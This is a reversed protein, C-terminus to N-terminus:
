FCVIFLGESVSEKTSDHDHDESRSEHQPNSGNFSQSLDISMNSKNQELFSVEMEEINNNSVQTGKEFNYNAIFELLDNPHDKLLLRIASASLNYFQKRDVGAM